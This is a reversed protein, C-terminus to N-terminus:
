PIGVKGEISKEVVMRNKEFDAWNKDGVRSWIGIENVSIEAGM